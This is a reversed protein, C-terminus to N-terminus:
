RRRERRERAAQSWVPAVASRGTCGFSPARPSRRAAGYLVDLRDRLATDAQPYLHGYHLSRAPRHQCARGGAALAGGVLGAGSGLRSPPKM